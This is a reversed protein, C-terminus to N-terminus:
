GNQLEKIRRDQVVSDVFERGLARGVSPSVGAGLSIQISGPQFDITVGSSTDATAGMGQKRADSAYGQGNMLVDRIQAAPAAPIIMEGQHVRADEDEQIEWAGKDYHNNKKHFALAKEPTGYRGKIYELGWDIQAAPDGGSFNLSAARDWSGSTVKGYYGKPLGKHHLGVLAQPIGYASSTPNDANTRWGSERMWLDNLADWQKGVWGRQAAKARGIAKNGDSSGGASAPGGGGGREKSDDEDSDEDDGSSGEQYNGESSFGGSGSMLAAIFAGESIGELIGMSGAASGEYSGRSSDSEGDSGESGGKGGTAIAGTGGKIEFHLHPGSSKGTSGVAGLVHGAKIKQGPRVSINSLHAYLTEEDSDPHNVRVHWGYSSDLKQVNSVVGDKWSKVPNGHDKTGPVNIDGSWRAWPYGSKHQKWEGPAPVVGGMSFSESHEEHNTDAKSSGETQLGVSLAAGARAERNMKSVAASGGVKDVWEPVMIGEGGALNLEGHEKSIFKMNDTKSPPGPLVGGDAFGPVNGLLTKTAGWLGMPGGGEKFGQYAGRLDNLIWMKDTVENLKGHFRELGLTTDELAAAYGPLRQVNGKREEAAAQKDDHQQDWLGMEELESQVGKDGKAAKAMKNTLQEPTIDNNRAVLIDHIHEKVETMSEPSMAGQRVMDILQANLPSEPGYVVKAIMEPSMKKSDTTVLGLVENAIESTSKKRGGEMTNIGYQRMANYAEPAHWSGEMKASQTASLMPNVVSNVEIGQQRQAWGETIKGDEGVMHEGSRLMQSQQGMWDDHSMATPGGSSYFHQRYSDSGGTKLAGYLNVMQHSQNTAEPLPIGVANDIRQGYGVAATAAGASLAVGNAGGGGSWGSGPARHAGGNSANPVGNSWSAGAAWPMSNAPGEARRKGAGEYDSAGTDVTRKSRGGASGSSGWDEGSFQPDGAIGGSAMKTVGGIGSSGAKQGQAASNIVPLVTSLTSALNTLLANVSDVSRQMPDTGVLRGSVGVNTSESM